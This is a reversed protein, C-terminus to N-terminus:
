TDRQFLLSVNYENITKYECILPPPGESEADEHHESTHPQGNNKDSKRVKAYGAM